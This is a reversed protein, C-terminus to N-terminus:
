VKRLLFVAQEGFLNARWLGSRITRFKGQHDVALGTEVTIGMEACLEIFDRITCFHINPTDYWAEHSPATAAMRGGFLLALRVRWFGYNPFSVITRRGIRSLHELVEKPRHTAQLTQSLVAYDFAESPYDKLDKDADGQVVSLGNRVCRNVGAMSLELGRGDVQKFRSLYALLDGDGCGIDLVRSGPEIMDAIIQLDVRIADRREDSQTM